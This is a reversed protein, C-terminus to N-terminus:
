RSAHMTLVKEKPVWHEYSGDQIVVWDSTMSLLTGKVEGAVQTTLPWAVLDIKVIKGIPPSGAAQAVRTQATAQQSPFAIVLAVASALGLILMPTNKM